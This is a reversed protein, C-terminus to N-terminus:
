GRQPWVRGRVVWVEGGVVLMLGRGEEVVEVVV